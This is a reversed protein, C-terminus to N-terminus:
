EGLRAVFGEAAERGIQYSHYRKHERFGMRENIALMSGNTASNGTSVWKLGDYRENVYRLMAAKLVKGLGRGRFDPHVGTFWQWVVGPEEPSWSVDTIGSIRGDPERSIYTHHESRDIALREYMKEFDEPSMEMDGHDLDDFPMLNMMESRAPCYEALFAEPLRDPYLELRTGPARTALEGEWRELQAWDVKNFYLRSIREVQKLEAGFWEIFAQGDPESSHLTLVTCGNPEMEAVTERLFRKGIGQRRWPGIVAMNAYLIHKGSEYGSSGPKPISITLSGVVADGAEALFRRDITWEDPKCMNGEVVADTRVPHTPDHEESRVRRFRHFRDWEERSSESPEWSRVTWKANM